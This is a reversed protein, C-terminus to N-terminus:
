KSVGGGKLWWANDTVNQISTTHIQKTTPLTQKYKLQQMCIVISTISNLTRPYLILLNKTNLPFKVIKKFALNQSKIGPLGM